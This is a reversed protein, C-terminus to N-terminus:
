LTNSIEKINQKKNLIVDIHNQINKYLVKEKERVKMISVRQHDKSFFFNIWLIFIFGILTIIIGAISMLADFNIEPTAQTFYYIVSMLFYIISTFTAISSIVVRLFEGFGSRAGTQKFELRPKLNESM